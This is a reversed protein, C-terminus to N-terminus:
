GMTICEYQLHDARDARGHRDAVAVVGAARQLAPSMGFVAIVAQPDAAMRQADLHGLRRRLEYPVAWAREAIIGQDCIM